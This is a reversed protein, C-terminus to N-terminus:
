GNQLTIKVELKCVLYPYKGLAAVDIKVDENHKKEADGRM